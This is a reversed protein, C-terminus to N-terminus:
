SAPDAAAQMEDWVANRVAATIQDALDPLAAQLAEVRPKPEKGGTFGDQPLTGIAEILAARLADEGGAPASPAPAGGEIAEIAGLAVLREIEAPTGIEEAQAETGFELRTAAIVTRKILYSM